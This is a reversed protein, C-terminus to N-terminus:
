NVTKNIKMGNLWKAFRFDVEAEALAPNILLVESSVCMPRHNGKFNFVSEAGVGGDDDHHTSLPSTTTEINKLIHRPVSSPAM